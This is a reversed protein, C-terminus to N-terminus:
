LLIISKTNPETRHQHGLATIEKLTSTFFLRLKISALFAFFCKVFHVCKHSSIDHTCIRIVILWIVDISVRRVVFKTQGFTIWSGPYLTYGQKHGMKLWM